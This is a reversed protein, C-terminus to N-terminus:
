EFSEFVTLEVLKSEGMRLHIGLADVDASEVVHLVKHVDQRLLKYPVKGVALVCKVCNM